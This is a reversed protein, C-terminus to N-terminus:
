TRLRPGLPDRKGKFPLKFSSFIVSFAIQITVTLMINTGTRYPIALNAIRRQVHHRMTCDNGPKIRPPVM